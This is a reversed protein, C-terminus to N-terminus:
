PLMTSSTSPSSSAVECRGHEETGGTVGKLVGPSKRADPEADMEPTNVRMWQITGMVGEELPSPEGEPPHDLWGLRKFRVNDQVCNLFISPCWAAEFREKFGPNLALYMMCVDVLRAMALRLTGMVPRDGQDFMMALAERLVEHFRGLDYRQYVTPMLPEMVDATDDIANTAFDMMARCNVSAGCIFMFVNKHICAGNLPDDASLWAGDYDAQM